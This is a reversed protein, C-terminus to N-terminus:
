DFLKIMSHFSLSSQLTQESLRTESHDIRCWRLAQTERSFTSVDVIMLPGLEQRYAEKDYQIQAGSVCGWDKRRLFCLPVFHLM